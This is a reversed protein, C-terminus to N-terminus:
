DHLLVKSLEDEWQLRSLTSALEWLYSNLAIFFPFGSCDSLIAKKSDLNYKMIKIFYIFLYFSVLSHSFNDM